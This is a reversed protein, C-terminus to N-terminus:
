LIVLTSDFLNEPNWEEYAAIVPCLKQDTKIELRCRIRLVGDTCSFRSRIKNARFRADPQKNKAVVNKSTVNKKSCILENGRRDFISIFLYNIKIHAHNQSRNELWIDLYDSKNSLAGKKSTNASLGFILDEAFHLDPSKRPVEKLYPEDCNFWRFVWEYTVATDAPLVALVGNYLNPDM